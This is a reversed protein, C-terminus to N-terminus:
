RQKMLNIHCVLNRTPSAPCAAEQLVGSTVIELCELELRTWGLFDLAM